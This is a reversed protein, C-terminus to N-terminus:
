PRKPAMDANDDYWRATLHLGEELTIKPAYGLFAIRGIDPCRRSTAGKAAPGPIVNIQRRFYRGVLVALDEIKIETMTGINYIGRDEGREILLMLGDVFDDIYCFARTEKGTGKIPFAIPGPSERSLQRMRLIFQPVVHEWGMDPGYVNHPRFIVVRTPGKRSCNLAMLESIIKTAAYSYRPNLPDPISLAVTEDTPIVPPTQYVESSSAVLLERVGGKRCAELVNVIGKVGVELVLDPRSYFFETGNIAALHCVVEVGKAAREVAGVDRVDAKVFEISRELDALRTRSGRSDDDFVRVPHGEAVLRRVLASGIFGTGGTVLFSKAM